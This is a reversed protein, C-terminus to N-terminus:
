YPIDRKASAGPDRPHALLGVDCLPCAIVTGTPHVAYVGESGFRSGWWMRRPDRPSAIYSVEHGLPAPMLGKSAYFTGRVPIRVCLRAVVPPPTRLVPNRIEFDMWPVGALVRLRGVKEDCELEKKASLTNWRLKGIVLTSSFVTLGILRAVLPKRSDEPHAEIGAKRWTGKALHYLTRNCIALDRTRVVSPVENKGGSLMSDRKSAPLRMHPKVGFSGARWIFNKKRERDSIAIVSTWGTGHYLRPVTVFKQSAEFVKSLTRAQSPVLKDSIGAILVLSLIDANDNDKMERLKLWQCSELEFTKRWM